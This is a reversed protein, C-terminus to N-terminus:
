GSRRYAKVSRSTKALFTRSGSGCRTSITTRFPESCMSGIAAPISPSTSNTPVPAPLHRWARRPTPPTSVQATREGDQAKAAVDPKAMVLYTAAELGDKRYRGDKDTLARWQYWTTGTGRVAQTIEVRVGFLSRGEDDVVRGAISSYPILEVDLREGAIGADLRINTKYPAFGEGEFSVSYEGTQLSSLRFAGGGDTTARRSGATVTVGAIGSHGLSSTVRGEVSGTDQAIAATAVATLVLSLHGIYVARM